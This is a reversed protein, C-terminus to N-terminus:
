LGETVRTPAGAPPADLSEESAAMLANVIRAIEATELRQVRGIRQAWWPANDCTVIEDDPEELVVRSHRQPFAIAPQIPLRLDPDRLHGWRRVAESVRGADFSPNTRCPIWGRRARADYEWTRGRVRYRGDWDRVVLARVAGPGVLIAALDRSVGALSPQVVLAYSDDLSPGLLRVLTDALRSQPSRQLLRVVYASGIGLGLAAAVGLLAIASPSSSPVMALLTAAVAGILLMAMAPLLARRRPTSRQAPRILRM